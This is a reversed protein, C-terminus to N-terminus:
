SASTSMNARGAMFFGIALLAQILAPIWSITHSPMDVLFSGYVSVAAWLAFLLTYSLVVSDRTKSPEANRVLWALVGLALLVVGNIKASFAATADTGALAPPAFFSLLGMLIMVIAAITFMTNLKM